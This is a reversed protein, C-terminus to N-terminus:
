IIFFIGVEYRGLNAEFEQDCEDQLKQRWKADSYAQDDSDQEDSSIRLFKSIKLNLKERKQRM